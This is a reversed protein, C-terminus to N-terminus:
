AAEPAFWSRAVEPLADLEAIRRFQSLTPTYYKGSLRAAVKGDHRFVFAEAAVMAKYRSTVRAAAVFETGSPAAKFWAVDGDLSVPLHGVSHFIAAGLIEDLVSFVLGGHILGPYNECGERPQWRAALDWGEAEYFSLRLGIPNKLSCGFCRNDALGEFRLKVPAGLTPAKPLRPKWGALRKLTPVALGTRLFQIADHIM